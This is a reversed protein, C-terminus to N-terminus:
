QTATIAQWEAWQRLLTEDAGVGEVGTRYRNRAGQMEYWSVKLADRFRMGEYGEEALKVLRNMENAFWSDLWVPAVGAARLKTDKGTCPM